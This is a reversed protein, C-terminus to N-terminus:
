QMLRTSRPRVAVALRVKELETPRQEIEGLRAHEDVKVWMGILNRLTEALRHQIKGALTWAEPQAQRTTNLFLIM